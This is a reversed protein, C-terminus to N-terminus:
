LTVNQQKRRRYARNKCANSCYVKLRGCDEHAMDKGCEKCRYMHDAQPEDVLGGFLTKNQAKQLVKKYKANEEYLGRIEEELFHARVELQAAIEALEALPFKYYKPLAQNVAATWKPTM